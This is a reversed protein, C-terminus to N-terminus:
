LYDDFYKTIKKLLHIRDMGRVNHEHEPYLFYDVLIGNEICKQIFSLSHQIVVTNDIYGHIILLNGKLIKAKNLLSTNEYGDPNEQPTDMYREGYMVEYYKWDIVPGGAVGTKFVDSFTTMLNITMFGGYSWGHVGIRKEDVYGLNKLYKVTEMQDLAENTGVNRHIVSEFEFGRNASGRNDVTIVVYGKQAMYYDWLPAGGLWSNEVMQAHPGGYVYLIAPYKKSADFNLPKIIRGYLDTKEDTAKIKFMQMEPLSIDKLPNPANLIERVKKGNADILNYVNPLETSSYQDILYKGSSCFMATHYGQAPTLCIIKGNELNVSYVNRELPSKETSIYYAVKEEQDFGLFDTVVWEGKTLQKLLDGNANYLYLHNYGDRQSQWIFNDSSKKLFVIPNLPEVYKENKEEFFTKVFDGTTADYQNFKMYNQQPNLVAIFIYKDDNSWSINTLYQVVPEGTKLYITKGSEVSFVGVTVIHSQMGAMPYRINKLEAIRPEIDVLPYETVMTEDMRYFALKEGTSSWFTGKVIGFEDRHVSKGFIIGTNKENSIAKENSQMDSVYLNNLKTYALMKSENCFDINETLSDITVYQEIKKSNVNFLIINETTEIKLLNKNVWLFSSYPSPSNLNHVKFAKLIESSNLIETKSSDKLNGEFLNGNKNFTFTESNSRWQLQQLYQPYFNRYQGIAAEDITLIRQQSYVTVFSIILWILLVSKKKM